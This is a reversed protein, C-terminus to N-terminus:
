RRQTAVASGKSYRDIDRRPATEQVEFSVAKGGFLNLPSQQWDDDEPATFKGSGPSGRPSGGAERSVHALPHLKVGNYTVLPKRPPLRWPPLISLM